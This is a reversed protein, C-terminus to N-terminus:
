AQLREIILVTFFVVALVITVLLSLRARRLWVPDRTMLWARLGGTITALDLTLTGHSVALDMTLKGNPTEAVDPPHM